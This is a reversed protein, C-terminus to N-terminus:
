AIIIEKIQVIVLAYSGNLYIIVTCYRLIWWM